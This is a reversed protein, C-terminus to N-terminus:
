APKLSEKLNLKFDDAFASADTRYDSPVGPKISDLDVDRAYTGSVSSRLRDISEPTANPKYEDIYNNVVDQKYVDALSQAQELTRSPQEPEVTNEVSDNVPKAQSAAIRDDISQNLVDRDHNVLAYTLGAENKAGRMGGGGVFEKKLTKMTNWAGVFDKAKARIGNEAFNKADKAWADEDPNGSLAAAELTRRTDYDNMMAEQLDSKVDDVTRFDEPLNRASPKVSKTGEVGYRDMLDHADKGPGYFRSQLGREFDFKDRKSFEKDKNKKKGM